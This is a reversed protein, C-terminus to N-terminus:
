DNYGIVDLMFDLSDGKEAGKSKAGQGDVYGAWKIMAITGALRCDKRHRAIYGERKKIWRQCDKPIPKNEHMAKETEIWYKFAKNGFQNGGKCWTSPMKEIIDFAVKLPFVPFQSNQFCIKKNEGKTPFDTIGDANLLQPLTSNETSLDPCKPIRPIKPFARKKCSSCKTKPNERAFTKEIKSALRDVLMELDSDNKHIDISVCDIHITGKDGDYHFTGDEYSTAKIDNHKIPYINLHIELYRKAYIKLMDLQKTEEGHIINIMDDSPTESTHFSLHELRSFVKQVFNMEDNNLNDVVLLISM